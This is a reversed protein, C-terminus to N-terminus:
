KLGMARRVAALADQAASAARPPEAGLRAKVKRTVADQFAASLTELTRDAQEDSSLDLCEALEEPLERGRLKARMRAQRERLNLAAERKDLSRLREQVDAAAASQEPSGKEQKSVTTENENM